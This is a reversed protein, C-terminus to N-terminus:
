SKMAHQQLLEWHSFETSCPAVNQSQRETGVTLSARETTLEDVRAREKGLAELDEEATRVQEELRCVEAMRLESEAWESTEVWRLEIMTIRDCLGLEALHLVDLGNDPALLGVRSVMGQINSLVMCHKKRGSSSRGAYRRLGM